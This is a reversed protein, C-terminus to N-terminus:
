VFKIQRAKREEKIKSMCKRERKTYLYELIDKYSVTRIHRYLRQLKTEENRKRYDIIEVEYGLNKIASYLAYAQLFRGKGNAIDPYTIIGIKKM